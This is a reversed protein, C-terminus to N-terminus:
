VSKKNPYILIKIPDGEGTKAVHFAKSSDEITFRHTILPNVDIKGSKVMEMAAPYDNNYRFVGKIDVERILASSLPLTFEDKGMGVLVVVGGTHTAKLAVRVCFEVGTCDLSIDPEEGLDKHIKEVVQDETMGKAIQITYDAGMSKAKVLRTELLDTIVVKSAGFAKAALLSVLGIPGAGLILVVSGLKVDGRKCAKVGVALPEMIAGEELTMHDALKYCFDAPHVYYRCLNGDDPPTACFFVDPCLNYRGTKCYNCARCPVGPEIAVRDGPKLTKVKKGVEVVTGSAEHGIVMPEKVIFPGIRGNTYYHVDSGCIGVVEMKLLVENDKPM